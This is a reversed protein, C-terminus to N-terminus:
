AYIRDCAGCSRTESDRFAGQATDTVVHDLGEEGEGAASDDAATEAVANLFEAIEGFVGGIKDEGDDAFLEADEAGDESAGREIRPM